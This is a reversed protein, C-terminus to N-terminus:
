RNPQGDPQRAPQTSKHEIINASTNLSRQNHAQRIPQRDRPSERLLLDALPDLGERAGRAEHLRGAEVRDLDVETM